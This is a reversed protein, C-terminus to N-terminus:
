DIERRTKRLSPRSACIKSSKFSLIYMYICIYMYM